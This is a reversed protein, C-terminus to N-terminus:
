NISNLLWAAAAKKGTCPNWQGGWAPMPGQHWLSSSLTLFAAKRELPFGGNKDKSETTAWHEIYNELAGKSNFRIM